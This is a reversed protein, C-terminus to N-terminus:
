TPVETCSCRRQQMSPSMQSAPTAPPREEGKRVSNHLNLVVWRGQVRRCMSMGHGIVHEGPADIEYEYSYWLADGFSKVDELRMKYCLDPAYKMYRKQLYAVAEKRGHYEGDPTYLVIEPDFCAELEEARGKEFAESCHHMAGEMEAYMTHADPPESRLSAVQRQLDITVGMKDLLDVGLIGDIRLGCAKGIPTLDIAPLKLDRLSHNGLILEPLRVERASTAATGSWSTIQIEKSRGTAFSGLNLITTAGTDLLFRMQSGDITVRVVPLVDCKEIPIEDPAAASTGDPNRQGHALDSTTLILTASLAVNRLFQSFCSMECGVLECLVKDSANRCRHNSEQSSIRLPYRHFRSLTPHTTFDLANWCALVVNFVLLILPAFAHKDSM